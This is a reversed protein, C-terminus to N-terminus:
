ASNKMKAHVYKELDQKMHLYNEKQDLIYNNSRDFFDVIWNELDIDNKFSYAILAILSFKNKRDLLKSSNNAKLTLIGLVEEFQEIDEQIIESDVNEKVFDLYTENVEDECGTIGLYENMLTELHNIKAIVVGRDKTSKSKTEELIEDFSKGDIKKSHLSKSFETMFEVFRNDDFGSKAFRAFLGFWLFSDKVNFLLSTEEKCVVTLREVFSYFETFNSDSAEESLFKGMKDFNCFEDIFDSVMISEVIIRRIAGSTNNNETYTSGTFDTQFFQMKAINEVLEAFSEDLGLWGNQAKNMPKSRNFRAIDDAIDKKTCNMNYLVPIQRDKFIEQLEEPLQSFKKGRIDFERFEMDTFGDENLVENGDKDTKNIQYRVNYNKVNRSVAFGDHLFDDLTTCRQKGDILWQNRVGNKIEESIIIQTLSKGRLVDSILESKAFSKWQGSHRQLIHNDRIRKKQLQKSISEISYSTNKYTEAVNEMLVEKTMENDEVKVNNNERYLIRKKDYSNIIDWSSKYQKDTLGLKKKIECPHYGYMILKVIKQSLEPLSNLYEKVQESYENGMNKELISDIDFDSQLTDGITLGNEDPVDISINSVYEKKKIIKGSEDEEEKEIIIQRKMRNRDTMEKWISHKIVGSVYNMFSKGMSPDYRKKALTLEYGVRSYFDDLDKQSVGGFKSIEKDCMYRLRSQNNAYLEEIVRETQEM